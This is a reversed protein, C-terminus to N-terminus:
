KLKLSSETEVMAKLKKFTEFVDSKNKLFYVWAKRSFDDIFTVYYRSGGFSAV